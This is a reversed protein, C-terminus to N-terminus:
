SNSAWPNRDILERVQGLIAKLRAVLETAGDLCNEKAQIELQLAVELMKHVTVTASAGKLKHATRAVSKIDSAQLAVEIENIYTSADEVFIELLEREFEADGHSIQELHELDVLVESPALKFDSSELSNDTNELRKQNNEQM